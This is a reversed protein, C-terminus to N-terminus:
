NKIREKTALLGARALLRGVENELEQYNKELGKARAVLALDFGSKIESLHQRLIERLKRKLYNRKVARKHVKLGAIVTARSNKLTNPRFHLSLLPSHVSRGSRFVAEIEKDKSLRFLRPLM